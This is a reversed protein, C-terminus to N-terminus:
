KQYTAGYFSERIISLDSRSCVALVVGGVANNRFSREGYKVMSTSCTILISDVDVRFLDVLLAQPLYLPRSSTM